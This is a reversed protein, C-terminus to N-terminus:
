VVLNVLKGPVVIKKRIEGTIFKQVNQDALAAAIIEDQSAAAPVQISGRLKGNVQVVLALQDTVLASSDVAPWATAHVPGAHGLTQWLAHALHPVIPALGLVLVEAGERLVAPTQGNAGDTGRSLANLLEMCAAVATNYTQRRGYDDDLKALTEHVKRRLAKQGADLAAVDLAPAAPLTTVFTWLRKLFRAAGEIGADNWELSQDPPATFMMFLRVADAGYRAIMTEPDVGNNKSKSMKERGGIVVPQGDSRLV